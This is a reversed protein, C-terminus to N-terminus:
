RQVTVHIEHPAVNSVPEVKIEKLTSGSEFTAGCSICTVTCRQYTPHIKAKMFKDGEAKLLVEGLSLKSLSLLLFM